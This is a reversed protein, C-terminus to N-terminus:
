ETEDEESPPVAPAPTRQPCRLVAQNGLSTQMGLMLAAQSGEFGGGLRPLGDRLLPVQGPAARDAATTGASSVDPADVAGHRRPAPRRMAPRSAARQAQAAPM